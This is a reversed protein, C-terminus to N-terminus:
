LGGEWYCYELGGEMGWEGFVEVLVLFRMVVDSVLM